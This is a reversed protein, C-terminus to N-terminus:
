LSFNTRSIDFQYTSISKNPRYNLIEKKLKKGTKAQEQCNNEIKDM